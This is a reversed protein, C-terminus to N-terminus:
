HGVIQFSAQKMTETYEGPAIGGIVYSARDESEQVINRGRVVYHSDMTLAEYANTQGIPGSGRKRILVFWRTDSEREGPVPIRYTGRKGLIASGLSCDGQVPPAVDMTLTEDAKVTAQAQRVFVNDEQRQTVASLRYTGAPLGNLVYEKATNRYVLGWVPPNSDIREFNLAYCGGLSGAIQASGLRPTFSLNYMGPKPLDVTFPGCHMRFNGYSDGFERTYSLLYKGPKSSVPGIQNEPHDFGMSIRGLDKGEASRFAFECREDRWSADSLDLGVTTFTLPAHDRPVGAPWTTARGARVGDDYDLSWGQPLATSGPTGDIHANDTTGPTARQATLVMTTPVALLTVLMVAAAAGLSPREHFKKGPRLLTRIREEINKAPGAIALSPVPHTSEQEQILTNVIITSYDKAETGLRAIAMEDCSKEREVRIRNDAWWVLPHFWFIAQAAIQLINVAADFRLVHSLEHGLIGRRHEDSTVRVFSHPLYIDGRVLEWVFPQGVGEILWMRPLKKLGLSSLLGGVNTQLDPPIMQRQRGLWLATRGAKIAAVLAFVGAEALWAIALWQRTGLHPRTPLASRVIPMPRTEAPAGTVLREGTSPPITLTATQPTREPLVPLPVNVVPPVLCKALVVLWLLYRVHASRHRLAWSILAVVVVLVGIQWSQALLYDAIRNLMAEM